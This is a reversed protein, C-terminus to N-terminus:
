KMAERFAEDWASPARNDLISIGIFLNSENEAMSALRKDGESTDLGLVRNMELDTIYLFLKGLQDIMEDREDKTM